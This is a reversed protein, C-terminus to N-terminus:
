HLARVRSLVERAQPKTFTKIYWSKTELEPRMIGDASHGPPPLMLHGLEHAIVDGLLSPITRPTGVNLATIRDYFVHARRVSPNALGLADVFRSAGEGHEEANVLVVTFSPTIHQSVSEEQDIWHIRAGIRAFVESARGEAFQLYDPLVGAVNDVRVVIVPLTATAVPEAAQIEASFALLSAAGVYGATKRFGV